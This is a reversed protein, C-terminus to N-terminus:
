DVPIREKLYEFWNLVINIKSLGEVASENGTKQSTLRMQKIVVTDKQKPM